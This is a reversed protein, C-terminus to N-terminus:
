IYLKLKLKMTISINNDNTNPINNKDAALAVIAKPLQIICIPLVVSLSYLM